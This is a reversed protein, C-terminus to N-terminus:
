LLLTEVAAQLLNVLHDHRRVHALEHALIAEIHQPSLENVLAAPLLIVPRLVGIVAPVEVRLSEVLGVPRAVHMLTAIGDLTPKLHNIARGRRMRTLLLWGGVHWTSLIAVGLAWAATLCALLTPAQPAPASLDFPAPALPQMPSAALSKPLPTVHGPEIVVADVRVVCFTLLASLVM